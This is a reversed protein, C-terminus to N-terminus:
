KPVIAVANACWVPSGCNRPSEGINRIKRVLEWVKGPKGSPYDGKDKKCSGDVHM